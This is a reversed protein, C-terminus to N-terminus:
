SGKRRWPVFCRGIAADFASNVAEVALSHAASYVFSSEDRCRGVRARQTGAVKLGNRKRAADGEVCHEFADSSLENLSSLRTLEVRMVAFLKL